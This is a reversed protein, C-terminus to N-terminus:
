IRLFRTILSDRLATPLHALIWAQVYADAGVLYRARPRPARVAHLVAAAVRDASIATRPVRDVHERLRDLAPGYHEACEPPMAANLAEAEARSKEWIPTQIAGPEVVSVRIGAARLEVRWADALAEVAFKSAAYPGVFPAAFRGSSSGMFVIRGRARRLAPLLAQTLAVQATVNVEMQRRFQELPLYELPGAVAIGANNVLAHLGADGTVEAVVRATGAVNVPDTIELKIPQLRVPMAARLRQADAERRVGALVHFGAAHLARACAEGIGTSAGTVLVTRPEPAAGGM